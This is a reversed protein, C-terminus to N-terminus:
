AMRRSEFGLVQQGGVAIRYLFTPQRPELASARFSKEIRNENPRDAPVRVDFERRPLRYQSHQVKAFWRGYFGTQGGRVHRLGNSSGQPTPILASADSSLSDVRTNAIQTNGSPFIVRHVIERGIWSTRVLGTLKDRSCGAWTRMIRWAAYIYFLLGVVLIAWFM